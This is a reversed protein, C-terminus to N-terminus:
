ASNEDAGPDSSRGNATGEKQKQRIKLMVTMAEGVKITMMCSFWSEFRREQFFPVVDIRADEASHLLPCLLSQASRILGCFIATQAADGSGYETIWSIRRLRLRGSRFVQRGAATLDSCLRKWDAISHLLDAREAPQRQLEGSLEAMWKEIERKNLQLCYVEKKWLILRIIASNELRGVHAEITIGLLSRLLLFIIIALVAAGTGIILLVTIM